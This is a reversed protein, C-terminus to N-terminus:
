IECVGGHCALEQSGTTTDEKEYSDFADWDVNPFENLMQSYQERTIEQYPAQKYVHDSKPMLSIGIFDDWNKYIWNGIEIFDKDTYYVSISPNHECWHKKYIRYLELQEMPSIDSVAGETAKMPFSFVVNSPNTVDVEWPVGQDKLFETIPDKVDQRVTRVYFQSFAPHIGSSCGVLQSVTGSPKVCTVAHSANIGLRTAFEDNTDIAGQRLEELVNGLSTMGGYLEKGSLIPHDMIGTLSVGLLREEEANNRWVSRLYKFNTLTSQLTGIISALRVKRLLDNFSDGARVVVESLNCLGCPRLIIEGCPNTGYEWGGISDHIGRRQLATARQAQAAVRNFLGREGSKSEYLTRWEKLFISPDPKETYAVSNNSLARQGDLEWWAGTKANALREDTLNSLSILASRRVGGVVVVEAVKCVLDHCELTTLKRGAAKRFLAVTYEFLSHLPEPGSSRGGFTRLRAGKPRLKSLDWSPVRGSYLLSILERFASAWGIRSDKVKITTETDYFEESICPLQKVEEREVTFGVGTGCMLIYMIEDFIRVNDVPAFSCNYGAIEDRDLAPGATMMSRMSPMVEKNLVAPYLDRKIVNTLYEKDSQPIDMDEVRHVWFNRWRECSEKWTERRSEEEIWRAYRSKEIFTEYAKM